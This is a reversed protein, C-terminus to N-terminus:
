AVAETEAKRAQVKKALAKMFTPRKEPSRACVLCVRVENRITIAQSAGCLSCDGEGHLSSKIVDCKGCLADHRTIRCFSEGCVLCKSKRTGQYMVDRFLRCVACYKTNSRKTEYDHGCDECVIKTTARAAAPAPETAETM